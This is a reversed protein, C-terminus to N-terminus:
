RSAKAPRLASALWARTGAVTLGDRRIDDLVPEHGAAARLEADAYQLIRTDNGTWRSIQAALVEVASDWADVDIHDARVILLDIDSDVRMDGRAASGFVAAYVPAPDWQGLAHELARLFRARTQALAIISDAVLHERNLSFQHAYGERVATVVGQAALRELCNRLGSESHKGLLRRLQGPTFAADVSALAALVDGDVTPTIAQLPRSLNM